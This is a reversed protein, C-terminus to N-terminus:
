NTFPFSRPSRWRDDNRGGRYYGDDEFDRFRFGYIDSVTRLDNRIQAWDSRARSDLRLRSVLRNVHAAAQLLQRAEDASRNLDRSDGAVDKFRDAADRFNEVDRNIHDERRSGDYRSDDLLRDVNRQFSRSRDNIHRALDRLLRRDYDRERRYNGDRQHEWWPRSDQASAILPLLLSVLAAAAFTLLKTPRNIM